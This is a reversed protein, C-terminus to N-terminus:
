TLFKGGEFMEPPENLWGRNYKVMNGYNFQYKSSKTISKDHVRYKMLSKDIFHFKYGYKAVRSFFDYDEAVRFFTNYPFDVALIRRYASSGNPIFDIKMFKEVSFERAAFEGARQKTEGTEPNWFDMRGYVVDAGKEFEGLTLELRYPYALDDSDQLAIYDGLALINGFNGIILSAIIPM